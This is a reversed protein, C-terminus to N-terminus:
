WYRGLLFTRKSATRTAAFPMDFMLIQNALPLPEPQLGAAGLVAFSM